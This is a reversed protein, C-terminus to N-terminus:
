MVYYSVSFYPISYQVLGNWVPAMPYLVLSSIHYFCTRDDM